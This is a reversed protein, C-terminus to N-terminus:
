LLLPDVMVRNTAYDVSFFGSNSKLHHFLVPRPSCCELLPQSGTVPDKGRWYWKVDMRTLVGLHYGPEFPLFTERHHGDRTEESLLHPLAVRLCDAFKVDEGWRVQELCRKEKPLLNQTPDPSAFYPHMLQLLARSIGYGAGLNFQAKPDDLDRSQEFVTHGFYLYSNPDWKHEKALYRFNGPMFLSDADLKVFWDYQSSYRQAIMWWGRSVQNWLDQRDQRVYYHHLFEAEDNAENETVFVLKDCERGYTAQIRTVMTSKNRSGDPFRFPIWCLVRSPQQGVAHPPIIPLSRRGVLLQALMQVVFFGILFGTLSGAPRM